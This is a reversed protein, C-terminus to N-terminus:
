LMDLFDSFKLTVYIQSRNRKFFLAFKGKHKKSHDEAQELAAWINLKETNKCECSSLGIVEKAKPSFHLDTGKEGM